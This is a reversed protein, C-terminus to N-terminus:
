ASGWDKRTLGLVHIGVLQGNKLCADRRKGEYVFGVKICYNKATELGEIVYATIRALDPTTKFLYDVAMAGLVRAEAIGAPLISAHIDVEVFGSEIITFVGVLENNVYAGLYSVNPHSIYGSERHDHGVKAAIQPHTLIPDVVARMAESTPLQLPAISLVSVALM